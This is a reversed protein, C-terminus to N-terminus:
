LRKEVEETCVRVADRCVTSFLDRRRAEDMDVGLIGRCTLSDLRKEVANLYAAVIEKTAAKRDAQEPGDSGHRASLVLVGGLVAGCAMQRGAIGGGFGTNFAISSRKGGTRHRRFLRHGGIPLLGFRHCVAGPRTRNPEHRYEFMSFATPVM